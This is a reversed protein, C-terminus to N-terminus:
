IAGEFFFSTVTNVGRERDWWRPVRSLRDSRGVKVLQVTSPGRKFYPVESLYTAPEHIGKLDSRPNSKKKQVNSM